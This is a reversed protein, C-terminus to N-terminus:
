QAREVKIVKLSKKDVYVEPVGGTRPEGPAIFTIAWSDGEDFARTDYSLVRAEGPFNKAVYERAVEIAANKSLNDQGKAEACGCLAMVAVACAILLVIAPRSKITNRLM